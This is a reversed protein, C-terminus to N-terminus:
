DLLSLYSWSLSPLLPYSTSLFLIEGLGSESESESEDESPELMMFVVAESESWKETERKRVM